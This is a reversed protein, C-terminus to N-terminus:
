SKKGLTITVQMPKGERIITLHIVDGPNKQSIVYGLSHNLDLAHGDITTIIDGEKLGAIDAPSGQQVAFNQGDGKILAGSTATLNFTAANEPTLM